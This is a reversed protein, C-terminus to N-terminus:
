GRRTGHDHFRLAIGRSGRGGTRGTCLGMAQVLIVKVKVIDIVRHKKHKRMTTNIFINYKVL